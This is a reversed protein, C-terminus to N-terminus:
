YQQNTPQTHSQKHRSYSLPARRSVYFIIGSQTAAPPATKRKAPTEKIKKGDTRRTQSDYTARACAVLVRLHTHPHARVPRDHNDLTPISMSPTDKQEERKARLALSVPLTDLITDIKTKQACSLSPPLALSLRHICHLCSVVLVVLGCTRYLLLLTFLSVRFSFFLPCRVRRSLCSPRSGLV